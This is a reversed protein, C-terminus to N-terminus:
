EEETGKIFSLREGAEFWIAALQSHANQLLMLADIIEDRPTDQISYDSEKSPDRNVRLRGHTVTGDGDTGETWMSHVFENRRQAALRSAVLAESTRDLLDQPLVHKGLDDILRLVQNLSMRRTIAEGQKAGKGILAWAFHSAVFELTAGKEVILGLLHTRDAWEPVPPLETRSVESTPPAGQIEEATM